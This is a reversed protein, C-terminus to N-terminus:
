ANQGARPGFAIRYSPLTVASSAGLVLRKLEVDPGDPTAQAPPGCSSNAFSAFL